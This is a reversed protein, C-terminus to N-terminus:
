RGKWQKWCWFFPNSVKKEEKKTDQKLEFISIHQIHGKIKSFSPSGILSFEIGAEFPYEKGPTEKIWAVKGFVLVPEALDQLYIGLKLSVGVQLKQYLDMQIGIDSIDKSRCNSHMIESGLQYQIRLFDKVRSSKRCEKM